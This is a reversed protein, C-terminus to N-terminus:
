GSFLPLLAAAHEPSLEVAGLNDADLQPFIVEVEEEALIAMRANFEPANEGSFAFHTRDESLTGLEQCSKLRAADHAQLVKELEPIALALKLAARIPLKQKYLERLAPVMPIIEKIKM